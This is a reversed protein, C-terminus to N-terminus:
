RVRVCQVNANPLADVLRRCDEVQQGRSPAVDYVIAVGVAFDDHDARTLLKGVLPPTAVAFAFAAFGVAAIHRERM